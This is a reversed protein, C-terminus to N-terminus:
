AVDASTRDSLMCAPHDGMAVDATTRSAYRRTECLAREASHLARLESLLSAGKRLLSRISRRTAVGLVARRGAFHNAPLRGCSRVIRRRAFCETFLRCGLAIAVADWLLASQPLDFVPRSHHAGTGQPRWHLANGVLARTSRGPVVALRRMRRRVGASRRIRLAARLVCGAHGGARPRSALDM